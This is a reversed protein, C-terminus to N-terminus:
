LLQTLLTLPIFLKEWIKAAMGVWLTQLKLWICICAEMDWCIWGHVGVKTISKMLSKDIVEGTRERHILDLLITRLRASIIRHRVVVECWLDLGLSFVPTKKKQHVYTRDMYQWLVFEDIKMACLQVVLLSRSPALLYLQTQFYVAKGQGEIFMTWSVMLIDRIMQTSKLHEEWRQRLEKLFSEGQSSEIESAITQLHGSFTTILGSYLRDGFRHLVMNYANRCWHVQNAKKEITLDYVCTALTWSRLSEMQSAMLMGICSRLASNAQMTIRYKTFLRKLCKGHRTQGGLFFSFWGMINVIVGLLLCSYWSLCHRVCWESVQMTKRWKCRTAFLSSWSERCWLILGNMWHQQKGSSLVMSSIASPWWCLGREDWKLWIEGQM